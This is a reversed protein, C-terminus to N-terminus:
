TTKRYSGTRYTYNQYHMYTKVRENEDRCINHLLSWNSESFKLKNVRSRTQFINFNNINGFDIIIYQM